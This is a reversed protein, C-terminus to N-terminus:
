GPPFRRACCPGGPGPRLRGGAREAVFADYRGSPVFCLEQSERRSATPLGLRKAETRVDSKHTDGLPFRLQALVESPLRYLFYSQDKDHDKGKKLLYKNDNREIRTYHGTAFYDIDNSEEIAKEFLFGFKVLRNCAVCPNPTRGNLYERRFYEIM